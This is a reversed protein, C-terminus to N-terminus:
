PAYALVTKGSGAALLGSSDVDLYRHYNTPIHGSVPAMVGSCVRSRVMKGGLLGLIVCFGNDLVMADSM